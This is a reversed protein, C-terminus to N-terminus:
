WMLIPLKRISERGWVVIPNLVLDEKAAKALEPPVVLCHACGGGAVETGRIVVRGKHTWVRLETTLVVVAPDWEAVGVM